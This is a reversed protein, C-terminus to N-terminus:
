RKVDLDFLSILMKRTRKRYKLHFVFSEMCIRNPCKRNGIMDDYLFDNTTFSERSQKLSGFKKNKWDITDTILNQELNRFYNRANKFNAQLKENESFFFILM